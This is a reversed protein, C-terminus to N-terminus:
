RLKSNDYKQVITPPCQNVPVVKESKIIAQGEPSLVFKLFDKVIDKPEGKVLM